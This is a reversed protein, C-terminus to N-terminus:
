ISITHTLQPVTFRGVACHHTLHRPDNYQNGETEEDGQETQVGVGKAVSSIWGERAGASKCASAVRKGAEEDKVLAIISGGMGAGSIKAGYAGAALASACIAEIRPISLDYLDRLLAHQRNMIEGLVCYDREGLPAKKVRIMASEGLSSALETETLPQRKLIKIALNTSHNMRFTFHFRRRSREDLTDLYHDLEAECIEGWKVQDLKFGLKARLDRPLNVNDM